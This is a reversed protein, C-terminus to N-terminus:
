RTLFRKQSSVELFRFLPGYFDFFFRDAHDFFASEFADRLRSVAPVIGASCRPQSAGSVCRRFTTAQFCYRRNAKTTPQFSLSSSKFFCLLPCPRGCTLLLCPSPLRSPERQRQRPRAILTDFFVLLFWLGAGAVGGAGYPGLGGAPALRDYYVSSAETFITDRVTLRSSPGVVPAGDLFSVASWCSESGTFNYNHIRALTIIFDEPM